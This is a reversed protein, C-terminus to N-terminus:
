NGVSPLEITTPPGKGTDTVIRTGASFVVRGPLVNLLTDRLDAHHGLTTRTATALDFSEVDLGGGQGAITYAITSPGLVLPDVLNTGLQLLKGRNDVYATGKTTQLWYGGHRGAFTTICAGGPIPNAV